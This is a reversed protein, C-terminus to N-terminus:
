VADFAALLAAPDATAPDLSQMGPVGLPKPQSYEEYMAQWGVQKLQAIQRANLAPREGKQLRQIIQADLGPEQAVIPTTQAAPPAAQAVPAPLGAAQPLGPVPQGSIPQPFLGPAAAAAQPPLAAPAQAPAGNFPGVFQTNTRTADKKQQVVEIVYHQGRMHQAYLKADSKAEKQITLTKPLGARVLDNVIINIFQPQYTYSWIAKAGLAVNPNEPQVAVVGSFQIKPQQAASIGAEIDEIRIVYRGVPLGLTALEGLTSGM